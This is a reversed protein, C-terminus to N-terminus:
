ANLRHMRNVRGKTGRKSSEGEDRCEGKMRRNRRRRVKNRRGVEAQTQGAAKTDRQIGIVVQGTVDLGHRNIRVAINDDGTGTVDAGEDVSVVVAHGIVGHVERLSGGAAHAEAEIAIIQHEDTVARQPTKAIRVTIAPGITRGLLQQVEREAFVTTM